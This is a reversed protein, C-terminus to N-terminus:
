SAEKKEDRAAQITEEEAVVREVYERMLGSMSGKGMRKAARKLM